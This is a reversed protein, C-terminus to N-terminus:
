RHIEGIPDRENREPITEIFLAYLIDDEAKLHRFSLVM